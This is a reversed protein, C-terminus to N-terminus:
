ADKYKVIADKLVKKLEEAAKSDGEKLGQKYAVWMVDVHAKVIIHHAENELNVSESFNRLSLAFYGMLDYSFTVAIDKLNNVYNYFTSKVTKITKEDKAELLDDWASEIKMLLIEVENAYNEEEEDIALQGRKVAKADIHGSVGDHGGVKEKLRNKRHILKVKADKSM